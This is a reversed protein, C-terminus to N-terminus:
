KKLDRGGFANPLQGTATTELLDLHDSTGSELFPSTLASCFLALCVVGRRVVTAKGVGTMSGM